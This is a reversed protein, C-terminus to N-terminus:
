GRCGRQRDPGAALATSREMRPTISLADYRVAVIYECGNQPDRWLWIGNADTAGWAARAIFAPNPQAERRQQASSVSYGIAVLAVVAVAVLATRAIM